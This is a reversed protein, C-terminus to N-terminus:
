ARERIRNDIARRAAALDEYTEVITGEDVLAFAGVFERGRDGRRGWLDLGLQRRAISRVALFQPDPQPIALVDARPRPRHWSTVRLKPM